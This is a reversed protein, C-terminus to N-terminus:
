FRRFAGLEVLRQCHQVVLDKNDLRYANIHEMTARYNHPVIVDRADL